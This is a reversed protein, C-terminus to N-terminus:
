KKRRKIWNADFNRMKRDAGKIGISIKVSRRELTIPNDFDKRIAAFLEFSNRNMSSKVTTKEKLTAKEKLNEADSRAVITPVNIMLIKCGVPFHLPCIRDVARSHKRLLSKGNAITYFSLCSNVCSKTFCEPLCCTFGGKGDVDEPIFFPRKKYAVGQKLLCLLAEM